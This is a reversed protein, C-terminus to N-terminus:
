GLLTHDVVWILKYKEVEFAVGAHFTKTEQYKGQHAPSCEWDWASGWVARYVPTYDLCHGTVWALCGGPWQHHEQSGTYKFTKHGEKSFM